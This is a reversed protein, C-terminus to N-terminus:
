ATREILLTASGPMVSAGGGDTIIEVADGAVFINLASPDQNIVTGIADTSGFQLAAMTVLVSGIELTIVCAATTNAIDNVVYCTKIIGAWPMVVFKSIPVNLDNFDVVFPIQKLKDMATEVLVFEDRFPRSQGFKGQEPVGTPTYLPTTM